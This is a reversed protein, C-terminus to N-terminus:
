SQVVDAAPVGVMSPLIFAGGGAHRMYKTPSSIKSMRGIGGAPAKAQFAFSKLTGLAM